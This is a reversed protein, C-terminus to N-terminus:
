ISFRTLWVKMNGADDVALGQALFTKWYPAPSIEANSPHVCLSDAQTMTESLVNGIDSLPIVFFINM